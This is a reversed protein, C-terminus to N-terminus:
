PSIQVGPPLDTPRNLSVFSRLTPDFVELLNASIYSVGIKDLLELLKYRGSQLQQRVVPLAKRSYVACLPVLVGNNDIPVIAQVEPQVQAVLYQLLAPVLYPMDCGVVINYDFSTAALGAELGALPGLYPYNDTLTPLQLWIYTEPTNTVVTLQAVLPKVAAVVLEILTPGDKQLHLLAKNVGMRSSHGGALVIGGVKGPATLM